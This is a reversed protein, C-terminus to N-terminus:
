SQHLYHLRPHQNINKEIRLDKKPPTNTRIRAEKISFKSM